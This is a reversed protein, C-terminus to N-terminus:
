AKTIAGGASLTWNYGTWSPLVNMQVGSADYDLKVPLTVERVTIEYLPITIGPNGTYYSVPIDGYHGLSAANPTPVNEPISQQAFASFAIICFLFLINTKMM